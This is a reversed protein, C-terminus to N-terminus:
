YLSHCAEAYASQGWLRKLPVMRWAAMQRVSIPRYSGEVRTAHCHMTRHSFWHEVPLTAPRPPRVRQERAIVDMRQMRQESLLAEQRRERLELALAEARGRGEAGDKEARERKRVERSLMSVFSLCWWRGSLRFLM